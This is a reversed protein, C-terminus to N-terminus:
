CRLVNERGIRATRQNAKLIVELGQYIYCFYIFLYKEVIWSHPKNWNNLVWIIYYDM